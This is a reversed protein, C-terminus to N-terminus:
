KKEIQMEAMQEQTLGNQKGLKLWYKTSAKIFLNQSIPMTLYQTTNKRQKIHKVLKKIGHRAIFAFPTSMIAEGSGICLRSGVNFGEQRCFTDMVRLAIDNQHPEFFGCNILIHVHQGHAAASQKVTKLLKMLPVPISDVYLPFVFLIDTSKKVAEWIVAPKDTKATYISCSTKYAKIFAEIYKKSNSRAPRPSGNIIVLEM